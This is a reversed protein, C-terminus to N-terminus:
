RAERNSRFTDRGPSAKAARAATEARESLSGRADAEELGAFVEREAQSATALASRLGYRWETVTGDPRETKMNWGRENPIEFISVRYGSGNDCSFSRCYAEKGDPSTELRREFSWTNAGGDPLMYDLHACEEATAMQMSVIARNFEVPDRRVDRFSWSEFDLWKGDPLKKLTWWEDGGDVQQIFALDDYLIGQRLAWNGGFYERLGDVDDARVFSYPYEELFPDDQWAYGGEMLWGNEQCKEVLAASEAGAVEGYEHEGIKLM